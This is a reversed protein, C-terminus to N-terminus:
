GGSKNPIYPKAERPKPDLSNIPKHPDKTPKEPLCDKINGPKVGPKYPKRIPFDFDLDMELDPKSPKMGPKHEPKTTTHDNNLEPKTRDVQNRGTSPSNEVNNNSLENTTCKEITLNPLNKTACNDGRSMLDGFNPLSDMIDRFSLGEGRAANNLERPKSQELRESSM